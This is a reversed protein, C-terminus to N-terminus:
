GHIPRRQLHQLIRRTLSTIKKSVNSNNTRERKVSGAEEEREGKESCGVMNRHQQSCSRNEFGDERGTCHADIKDITELKGVAKELRLV